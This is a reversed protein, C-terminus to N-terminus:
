AAELLVDKARNIRAAFYDTGGRDPHFKQMLRRHAAIVDDRSAGPQLGLIALAEERDIPKDATNQSTSYQQQRTNLWHPILRALLPGMARLFPLAAAIVAGIWHIRGTAALIVMAIAVIALGYQWFLPRRAAPSARKFQQIIWLTAGLLIALLILRTIM